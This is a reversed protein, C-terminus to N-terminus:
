PQKFQLALTAIALHGLSVFSAAEEIFCGVRFITAVAYLEDFLSMHPLDASCSRRHNSVGSVAHQRTYRPLNGRRSFENLNPCCFLLVSPCGACLLRCVGESDRVPSLRGM